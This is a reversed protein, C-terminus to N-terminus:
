AGRSASVRWTAPLNSISRPKRDTDVVFGVTKTAVVDEGDLVDLRLNYRGGVLTLPEVHAVLGGEGQEDVLGALPGSRYVFGTALGGGGLVHLELHLDALLEGVQLDISFIAPQGATPVDGDANTITLSRVWDSNIDDAELADTVAEKREEKRQKRAEAKRAAREEQASAEPGNAADYGPRWNRANTEPGAAEGIIRGSHDTNAAERYEDLVSQPDGIRRVEGHHLWLVQDAGSELMKLSHTVQVITTGSDRLEQMRKAGHQKFAIDGVATIEDALLVDPNMQISVAFGLRARMGSSYTSIPADIFSGIDAMEVIEDMTSDIHGRDLGVVAANMHINERGTLDPHFGAGLELLASVRGRIKVHGTTPRYVGCLTRLFTSKGSGNRGIVGLLSGKPVDISVNRFAWFEERNKESFGTLRDKLSNSRRGLLFKKSVDVVEIANETM